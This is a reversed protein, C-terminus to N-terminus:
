LKKVNLWMNDIPALFLAPPSFKMPITTRESPSFEFSSILRVIGLKAQLLGFRGGICNRPGNGFPIFTFPKRNKVNEPTFREPDFKEPNPFYEPDRHLSFVNIHIDTNAPIVMETGPIKFDKSSKRMILFVPPFKRLTENVVMDLYKLDFLLDYTLKGGNREIGTTIENRLRKQIDPNLALEYLMFVM